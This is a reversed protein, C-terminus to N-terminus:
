RQSIKLQIRSLIIHIPDTYFVLLNVHPGLFIKLPTNPELLNNFGMFSLFYILACQRSKFMNSKFTTARAQLSINKIKKLYKLLIKLGTLNSKM